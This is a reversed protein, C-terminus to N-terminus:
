RKFCGLVKGEFCGLAMGEMLGDFCGLAIGEFCGLAMGEVRGLKIGELKGDIEHTGEPFGDMDVCGDKSALDPLCFDLM